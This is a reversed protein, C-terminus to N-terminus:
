VSDLRLRRKLFSRARRSLRRSRPLCFSGFGREALTRDPMARRFAAAVEETFDDPVESLYGHWAQTLDVGRDAGMAWIRESCARFAEEREQFAIGKSVNDAYWRVFTDPLPEYLISGSAALELFLLRDLQYSHASLVIPAAACLPGTRAVMSSIHFPNLLASAALMQPEGLKWLQRATPRGSALWLVPPRHIFGSRALETDVFVSACFWAAAGPHDGLALLASELHGPGWWDDDCLFAAIETQVESLLKHFHEQITLQPDQITYRIPLEPFRACVSESAKDGRNESVRVEKIQGLATQRAVSALATELLRPQAATPVLVSMPKM